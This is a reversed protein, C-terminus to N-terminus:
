YKFGQKGNFLTVRELIEDLWETDGIHGTFEAPRTNSRLAKAQHMDSGASSLLKNELCYQRLIASAEVPISPHACEIGDFDLMEKMEDMRCRDLKNFYHYPHAIFVTGGSAKVAPIVKDYEPYDPMDQFYNFVDPIGNADPKAGLSFVKEFLIEFKVHTTGQKAIAKQPRYSQLLALRDADDFKYGLRCLNASQAKGYAQQWSRYMELVNKINDDPVVPMGLCVMDFTGLPSHVTLEAGAIYSVEPFKEATIDIESYADMLHHDTIAFAKTKRNRAMEFVEDLTTFADYSWQTHLHLDYDAYKM